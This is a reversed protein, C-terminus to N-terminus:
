REGVGVWRGEAHSRIAADIVLQAELGDHLSPEVQRGELVADIFLRDGIPETSFLHAIQQMLPRSRDTTGWFRDPVPAVAFQGEQGAVRVEAGATMTVDVEITGKEGHLVVHQEQNREATQAVASVQITGHGGGAFRLVLVAADNAPELRGGEPPDREVFTRLDASVGSIDGVFWRSLDIMHSGLDGLVGCCRARDFRWAYTKGRGYSGLYRISCHYCRGIAGAQILERVYRYWPMWRYTFYTMHTVGASEAKECMARADRVTVALPKECIVHLGADLAAMTVAYHLDDPVAVVIAEVESSRIMERFDTFFRPISHKAAVEEARARNRGCVARVKARPHSRLYPVHWWDSWWSTGVVGVSVTRDM